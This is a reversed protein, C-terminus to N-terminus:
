IHTWSERRIIRNITSPYVDFEDALHTIYTGYKARQERIYRVDDETLKSKNNAEGIKATGHVTRLAANDKPSMWELNDIRNDDRKGNLHSSEYGNPCPGRFVLLILRHVMFRRRVGSLYLQVRLYGTHIREPKLISRPGHVNGLNSVWYGDWVPIRLWYEKAEALKIRKEQTNM